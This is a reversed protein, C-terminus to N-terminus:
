IKASFRCSSRYAVRDFLNAIACAHDHERQMPKKWGLESKQFNEGHMYSCTHTLGPASPWAVDPRYEVGEDCYRVIRWAQFQLKVPRAFSPKSRVAGTTVERSCSSFCVNTLM